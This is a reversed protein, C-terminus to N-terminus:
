AASPEAVPALRSARLAVLTAAALAGAAVAIALFTARVGLGSFMVGAGLMGVLFALNFGAQFIGFARGLVEDPLTAVMLARQSQLILVMVIGMAAFPLLAAAGTPALGYVALTLGLGCMGALCHRRITDLSRRATCHLAAVVTGIGQALVMLAFLSGSAHLTQTALLPEGVNTVAGFAVCGIVALSLWRLHSGALARWGEGLEVRWGPKPQDTSPPTAGFPVRGIVVAQALFTAGDLALVGGTGILPLFLACLAAGGTSGVNKALGALSMVSPRDAEDVLSPLAANLAPNFAAVATGNVLALAVTVEFSSTMAMGLFSAGSVIDAWVAVRRRGHRDALAGLAPALVVGPLFESLLVISIAWPSHLREHAVLVLAVWAAGSGLESQLRAGFLRRVAPYRGLLARAASV